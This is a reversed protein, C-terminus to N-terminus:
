VELDPHLTHVKLSASISIWSIRDNSASITRSMWTRRSDTYTRETGHASFVFISSRSRSSLSVRQILENMMADDARAGEEHQRKVREEFDSEEFASSGDVERGGTRGQGGRGGGGGRGIRSTGVGNVSSSKGEVGGIDIGVDFGADLDMPRFDNQNMNDSTPVIFGPGGQVSSSPFRNEESSLGM